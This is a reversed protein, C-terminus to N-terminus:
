GEATQTLSQIMAEPVHVTATPFACEAGHADIIALLKLFIDQQVGQFAVWNTTKTLCYVLFNLSSEGFEVLKVFCPLTTDIDEHENLMDEMAALMPEICKVDQYRVGIKTKIRRNSMRSPNEISIVSFVGNPVYLLRKDFTRLTTSRWGINEVIGEINKDSSRIWEGIVFPRDLFIILGGFINALLDKAAFGIAIGGLGGAAMVGSTPVGLTDLLILGSSVIVAIRLLQSIGRITTKDVHDAHDQGRVIMTEEVNKILNILFWILVLILLASKGTLIAHSILTNHLHLSIIEATMALGIIWIMLTLPKSSAKIVCDDWINATMAAKVAFRRYLSSKIINVLGTLFIVMFVHMMWANEHYFVAIDSTIEHM